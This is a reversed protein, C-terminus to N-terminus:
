KSSIKIRYYYRSGNKEVSLSTKFVKKLIVLYRQITRKDVELKEALEITIYEAQMLLCIMKAMREVHQFNNTEYQQLDPKM